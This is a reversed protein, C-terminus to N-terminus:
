GSRLRRAAGMASGQTKPNQYWAAETGPFGIVLVDLWGDGDFDYTFSFFNDSYELPDFPKPAYIEHRETFEPGAFWFPGAVADLQGDNNMDGFAAGEAFFRDELVVKRFSPVAASSNAGSVVLLLTLVLSRCSPTIMEVLHSPPTVFRQRGVRPSLLIQICDTRNVQIGRPRRQTDCAYSDM